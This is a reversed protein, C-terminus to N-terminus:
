ADDEEELTFKECFDELSRVHDVSPDDDPNYMVASHWNADNPGKMLLDNIRNVTVMSGDSDKSFRANETVSESACPM